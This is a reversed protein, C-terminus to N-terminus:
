NLFYKLRIREFMQIYKHSSNDYLSNKYESIFINNKNTANANTYKLLSKMYLDLDLRDEPFKLLNNIFEVYLPSIKNLVSEPWKVENDFLEVSDWPYKGCVLLYGLIGIQWFDIFYIDVYKDKFGLNYQYIEPPIFHPSIGVFKKINKRKSVLKSSGFDILKLHFISDKKMLVINELKIDLHAVKRYHCELIALIVQFLIIKAEEELFKKNIKKLYNFLDGGEAFEEIIFSQRIDETESYQFNWSITPYIKYDVINVIYKSDKFLILQNIENILIQNIEKKYKYLPKVIKLIVKKKRRSSSIKYYNGSIINYYKSTNNKDRSRYSMVYNNDLKIIYCNCCVRRVYGICCGM